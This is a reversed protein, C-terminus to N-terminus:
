SDILSEKAHVIKGDFITTLVQIQPIKDPSIRFIDGSLIVLDALKGVQISGRISEEHSAYAAGLTYAYVADYVSVREKPYWSGKKEKERKRTVAAYIGKLPNLSEIPMDSGFVLRAKNKLLSNYPYAMKCRKGWYKEAIEIDSTAHIPQVSAIVNLQAFRKLDRPQILQIHEIRNRLSQKGSKELANLAQHVARDGIAHIILNIGRNNAKRVLSSLEKETLAEIGFNEKSGIYPKFTLATQSGLSGDTYLKVGGFRLYQNGFGAKLGLSEALDLQSRPITSYVRLNLKNELLLTQYHHLGDEFGMEHIGVLGNQHAIKVADKFRKKVKKRDSKKILELILDCANERIIGSLERTEPEKEIQKEPYSNIRQTVQNLRLTQSNVWFTHQDKSFVAIPNENSIQDLTKKNFISQDKFINKDWGKVFLLEGKKLNRLKEKIRSKLSELTKVTRIDLTDLTSAFYLFHTHCDVFGPLVTKGKLDIVEFGKNELHKIEENKGVAIIKSDKVALAQAQPLSRNLTYVKGNLLILGKM